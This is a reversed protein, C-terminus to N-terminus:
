PKGAKAQQRALEEEFAAEAAALRRSLEDADIFAAKDGAILRSRKEEMGMMVPHSTLYIDAKVDRLRAFTERFDAAAEPYGADNVLPQNAVTLSCAFLLDVNRGAAKSRMTWSTCGKSHGPTLHTVLRIRGMRVRSGDALLGDVKVAPAPGVDSRYPVTGSELEPADAASALLRAGTRKKLAALGGSHDWHAHDVLLIRVDEPRFGLTRINAEIQDASEEMAADILVHGKPDTILFSSLGATGVYFVNDAIAFPAVRQNWAVRRPNAESEQRALAPVPAAALALLLLLAASKM